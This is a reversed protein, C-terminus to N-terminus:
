EDSGEERIAGNEILSQIASADQGAQEFEERTITDGPEKRTSVGTAVPVKVGPQIEREEVEPLAVVELVEYSM